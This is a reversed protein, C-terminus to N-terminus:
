KTCMEAEKRKAEKKRIIKIQIMWLFEQICALITFSLVGIFVWLFFDAVIFFLDM